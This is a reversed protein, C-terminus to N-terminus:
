GREQFTAVQRRPPLWCKKLVDKISTGSTKSPLRLTVIMTEDKLSVFLMSAADEEPFKAMKAYKDFYWLFVGYSRRKRERLWIQPSANSAGYDYADHSHVDNDDGTHTDDDFNVDYECYCHNDDIEDNKLQEALESLIAISSTM